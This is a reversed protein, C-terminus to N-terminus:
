SAPGFRSVSSLGELADAIRSQQRVSRWLLLCGLMGLGAIALLAYAIAELWREVKDTEPSAQAVALAGGAQSEEVQPDPLGEEPPKVREQPEAVPEPAPNPAAARELGIQRPLSSQSSIAALASIISLTIMGALVLMIVRGLWDFFSM